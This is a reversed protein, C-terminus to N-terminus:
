ALNACRRSVRKAASRPPENKARKNNEDGTVSGKRDSTADFDINRKGLILNDAPDSESSLDEKQDLNSGDPRTKSRIESNYRTEVTNNLNPAQTDELEMYIMDDDQTLATLNGCFKKSVRKRPAKPEDRKAQTQKPKLAYLKNLEDLSDKYDIIMQLEPDLFVAKPNIEVDKHPARDKIRIDFGGKSRELLHLPNQEVIKHYEFYHLLMSFNNDFLRHGCGKYVCTLFEVKRM